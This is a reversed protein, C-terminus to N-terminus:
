SKIKRWNTWADHLPLLSISTRRKGIQAATTSKKTTTKRTAFTRFGHALVCFISIGEVNKSVCAATTPSSSSSSSFSSSANDKERAVNEKNRHREREREKIWVCNRSDSSDPHRDEAFDIAISVAEHRSSVCSRPFILFIIQNNSQAGIRRSSSSSPSPSPLTGPVCM